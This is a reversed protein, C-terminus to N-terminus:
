YTDFDDSRMTEQNDSIVVSMLLSLYTLLVMTPQGFDQSHRTSKSAPQSCEITGM